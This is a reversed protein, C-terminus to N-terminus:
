FLFSKVKRAAMSLAIKIGINIMARAIAEDQRAQYGATTIVLQKFDDPLVSGKLANCHEHAVRLNSQENTGGRYLPIWHEITFDDIDVQQGCICCVGNYRNYVKLKRSLAIHNRKSSCYQTKDGSLIECEIIELGMEIAALYTIYGDKLILSKYLQIPKSFEGNKQYYCIKSKIREEVNKPPTSLMKETIKIDGLNVLM